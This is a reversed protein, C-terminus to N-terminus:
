LFTKKQKLDIVHIHHRGLVYLCDNYQIPRKTVMDPEILASGIGWPTLLNLKPYFMNIETLYKTKSWGGILLITKELSGDPAQMMVSNDINGQERQDSLFPTIDSLYFCAIKGLESSGDAFNIMQWKAEPNKLDLREFSNLGEQGFATSHFGGFAYLYEGIVMTGANARTECMSPMKTWKRAYIDFKDVKDTSISGALNGGVCYIFRDHYYCAFSTRAHPIRECLRVSYDELNWEQVEDSVKDTYKHSLSGSIVFVRNGPVLIARGFHLTKTIPMSRLPNPLLAQWEFTYLEHGRARKAKNKSLKLLLRNATQHYDVESSIDIWLLCGEYYQVFVPRKFIDEMVFQVKCKEYVTPVFTEYWSREVLQM